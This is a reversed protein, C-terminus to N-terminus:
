VIKEPGNASTLHITEYGEDDVRHGPEARHLSPSQDQKSFLQQMERSSGLNLNKKDIRNHQKSRMEKPINRNRDFEDAFMLQHSTVVTPENDIEEEDQEEVCCNDLSLDDGKGDASSEILKSYKYELSRNQNWFHFVLLLLLLGLSTAIAIGIQVQRPLLVTCPRTQINIFNGSLLDHDKKIVCGKPNIYHVQQVGDVCEGVLTEYDESFPRCLRCAAATGTEILLHFNCGDCTGDPCSKPTSVVAKGPYSKEVEPSCRMTITMRRGNPCAGTATKTFFFLHYDTDGKYPAPLPKLFDEHVSINQLTKDRSIGILEDGSIYICISSFM